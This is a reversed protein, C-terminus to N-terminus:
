EQGSDTRTARFLGVSARLWDLSLDPMYSRYSLRHTTACSVSSYSLRAINTERTDRAVKNDIVYTVKAEVKFITQACTGDVPSWFPEM